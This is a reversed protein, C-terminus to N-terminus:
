QDDLKIEETATDKNNSNNNSSSSNDKEEEAETNNSSKHTDEECIDDTHTETTPNEQEPLEKVKTVEHLNYKRLKLFDKVVSMCCIKGVIEVLIVIDPEDHCVRHLANMDRVVNGLLPLLSVRGISDNNRVKHIITFGLDEEVDFHPQFMTKALAEIDDEVARCTGSIPLLRLAFRTKLKKSKALDTLISHAVHCPDELTTKIFICNKAKTNVNQFRREASKVTKLAAIEREMEKEM